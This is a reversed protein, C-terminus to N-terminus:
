QDLDSRVAQLAILVDRQVPVHGVVTEGDCGTVQIATREPVIAVAPLDVLRTLTAVDRLAAAAAIEARLDEAAHTEGTGLICRGHVQLCYGPKLEWPHWQPDEDRGPGHGSKPLLFEMAQHEFGNETDFDECHGCNGDGRSGAGPLHDFPVVSRATGFLVILGVAFTAHMHRPHAARPGVAPATRNSPKQTRM